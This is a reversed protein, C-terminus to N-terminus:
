KKNGGKKEKIEEGCYPCYNFSKKIGGFGHTSYLVLASDLIGSNEKWDKCECEKM